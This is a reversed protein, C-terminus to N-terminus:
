RRPKRWIENKLAADLIARFADSDEGLDSLDALSPHDAQQRARASQAMRWTLGEDALGQIEAEARAIEERAARRAEIRDLANALIGAAADGDHPRLIAPAARVHPEALISELARQGAQSPTGSLLDHILAARDPDQPELRELRSEVPGILDPHTACIALVMAEILLEADHEGAEPSSLRSARTPAAPAVPLAPRMGRPQWGAQAPRAQAADRRRNGFLEWKLNKLTAFYHDRTDKDPIRAVAEGLAKDLAARREPSDFVRGETERRWLLDVLPRAEDLVAAMAGAGRARILDDPDLGQPLFAFRLAQGPGTMPLALDILRMAARLGASDGDLAIVPEPSIRWMLRLQDETIATGLPAVAGEFGARVLAIVDMYGEAVVLPKGKAVAARAPGANYLNRGKDFLATEPSNLYKARANPDMARGGFAICRGRGDRIPFIIRGRFRDFPAGGGDPKAALGAEVILAEAIGKSRLANFLGQRQDPAFGIGFQECAAPDLGRRALYARAQEAAAMGLQMRFWRVAQEMVEVLESRRDARQVQRPDREPMQLGAESALLEVAELFGMGEAERLFTLADGKAHCGFCYYFGKQDDVHFSATKEGHFPCPAWWDGKAQNSRRLDWTVKRGIVRSLPVRARIEDLFQPPLSM